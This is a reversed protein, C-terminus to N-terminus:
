QAHLEQRAGAPRSGSLLARVISRRTKPAGAAQASPLAADTPTLSVFLALPVLWVAFFIFACVQGFPYHLNSMFFVFWVCHNGLALAMSCVALAGGVRVLPFQALHLAYVHNSAATAAARWVSLGDLAALVLLADVAWVAGQIARRTPRPYEEAWESLMFLACAVALVLFAGGALWGAAAVARLVVGM